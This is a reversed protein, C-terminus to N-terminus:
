RSIVTVDAVFCDLDITVKKQAGAFGDTEIHMPGFIATQKKGFFRVESVVGSTSISVGVGPPVIVDVDGVFSQIRFNTEGDPVDAQSLDLNVDGVFARIDQDAVDWDGRRTIDGIFRVGTVWSGPAVRPGVLMWVGILILLVPWFIRGLDIQLLNAGLYIAGLLIMGLGLILQNRNRM